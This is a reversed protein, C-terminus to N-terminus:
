VMHGMIHKCCLVQTSSLVQAYCSSDIWTHTVICARKSSSIQPFASPSLQPCAPPRTVAADAQCGCAQQPRPQAEWAALWSPTCSRPPTPRTPPQAQPRRQLMRGMHVCQSKFGPGEAHPASTIGSCWTGWLTKAACSQNHAYFTRTLYSLGHTHCSAPAIAPRCRHFRRRRCSHFRGHGPSRLM